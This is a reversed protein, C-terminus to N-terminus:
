TSASSFNDASSLAACNFAISSSNAARSLRIFSIAALYNACCKTQRISFAGQIYALNATFLATYINLCVLLAFWYPLGYYIEFYTRRAQRSRRTPLIPDLMYLSVEHM